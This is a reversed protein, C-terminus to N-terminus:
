VTSTRRAALREKARELQGRISGDYVTSRIQAVIGGILEDDMEFELRVKRGTIDSLKAALAQRTEEPFPRATTIRASVRGSREDIITAFKRNIEALETIRQNRLLVQLFNATTSSVGSRDILENLVKRKQEYAITPNRFVELLLENEHILSEWALLEEQVRAAENKPIVVDALATAYRRAVTEVSM